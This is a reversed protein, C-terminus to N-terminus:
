EVLVQCFLYSAQEPILSHRRNDKQRHFQINIYRDIINRKFQYVFSRELKGDFQFFIIAQQTAKCSFFCVNAYKIEGFVKIM